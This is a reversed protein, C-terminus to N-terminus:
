SPAEAPMGAAVSALSTMEAVALGGVINRALAAELQTELPVGSESAYLTHDAEATLPM